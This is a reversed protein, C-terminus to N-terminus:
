ARRMRTAASSWNSRSGMCASRAMAAWPEASFAKATPAPWDRRATAAASSSPAADAGWAVTFLKESLPRDPRAEDLTFLGTKERSTM